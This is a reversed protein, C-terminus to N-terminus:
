LCIYDPFHQAVKREHFAPSFPLFPLPAFDYKKNNTTFSGHSPFCCGQQLAYCEKKSSLMHCESHVSSLCVHSCTKPSQTFQLVTMRFMADDQLVGQSDGVSTKSPSNMRVILSHTNPKTKKKIIGLTIKLALLLCISCIIELRVLNINQLSSHLSCQKARDM